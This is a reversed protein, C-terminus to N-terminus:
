DKEDEKKYRITEDGVNNESAAVWEKIAKIKESNMKADSHIFTYISLPMVGKEVLESVGDMKKSRRNADYRDWESFNLHERGENVDKAILFSVPAINSYWPWVTENSHCDYCSTKLIVSINEPPNVDKTIPPNTREVPIFQIGVFIVVLAILIKKFM